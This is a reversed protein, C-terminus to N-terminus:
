STASASLSRTAPDGTPCPLPRPWGGLRGASCTPARRAPAPCPRAARSSGRGGRGDNGVGAIIDGHPQIL